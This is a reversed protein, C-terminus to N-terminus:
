GRERSGQRRKALARSLARVSFLIATEGVVLGAVVWLGVTLPDHGTDRLLFGLLLFPANWAAAGLATALTFPRPDLELVGAPLPLYIRVTPIVQGTLTVWFQNRRYSDGLKRYLSAPFFVYKGWRSVFREVREHGLTRGLGYWILAGVTSGATTALVVLGLDRWGAAATMGLFVLVVYSPVIPVLKETLALAAVGVLGYSLLITVISPMDM